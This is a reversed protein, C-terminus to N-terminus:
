ILARRSLRRALRPPLPDELGLSGCGISVPDLLNAWAVPRAIARSSV